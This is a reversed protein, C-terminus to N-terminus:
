SFMIKIIEFLFTRVEDRSEILSKIPSKEAMCKVERWLIRWKHTFSNFKIKLDMIQSIELLTWKLYSFFYWETLSPSIHLPKSSIPKQNQVSSIKHKRSDFWDALCGVFFTRHNYFLSMCDLTIGLWEHAHTCVCVSMNVYNKGIVPVFSLWIAVKKNRRWM